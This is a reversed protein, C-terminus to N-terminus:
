WHTAPRRLTVILCPRNKPLKDLSIQTGFTFVRVETETTNIKLMAGGIAALAGGM